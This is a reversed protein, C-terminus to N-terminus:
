DLPNARLYEKFYERIVLAREYLDERTEFLAKHRKLTNIAVDMYNTTGDPYEVVQM